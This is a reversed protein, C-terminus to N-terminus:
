SLSDTLECWPEICMTLAYLEPERVGYMTLESFEPGAVGLCGVSDNRLPSRPARNPSVGGEHLEELRLLGSLWCDRDGVIGEEVLRLSRVGSSCWAAPISASSANEDAVPGAKSKATPLAAAGGRADVGTGTAFVTATLSGVGGEVIANGRLGM